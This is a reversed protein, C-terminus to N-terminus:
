QFKEILLSPDIWSIWEKRNELEPDKIVKPSICLIPINKNKMACYISLKKTVESYESVILDIQKPKMLEQIAQDQNSAIHIQISYDDELYFTVLERLKENSITVLARM